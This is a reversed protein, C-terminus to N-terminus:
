NWNNKDKYITDLLRPAQKSRKKLNTMRMAAQGASNATSMEKLYTARLQNERNQVSELQSVCGLLQAALQM